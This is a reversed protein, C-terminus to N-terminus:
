QKDGYNCILQHIHGLIHGMFAPFTEFDERVNQSTSNIDFVVSQIVFILDIKNKEELLQQM